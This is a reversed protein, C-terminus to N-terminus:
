HLIKNLNANVEIYYDAELIWKSFFVSYEQILRLQSIAGKVDKKALRSKALALFRINENEIKNIENPQLSVFNFFYKILNNEDNKLYYSEMYISINKELNKNLNEFGMFGNNSLIKLKDIYTKKEQNIVINYLLDIEESFNKGNELKFKILEISNKLLTNEDSYSNISINKKSNKYQDTLVNISEKLRNNEKLITEIKNFLVDYSNNKQINNIDSNIKKIIQQNNVIINKLSDIDQYNKEIFISLDSLENEIKKLDSSLSITKDEELFALMFLYTLGLIILILFISTALKSLFYFRNLFNSM